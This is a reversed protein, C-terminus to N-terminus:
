IYGIRASCVGVKDLNSYGTLSPVNKIPLSSQAESLLTLWFFFISRQPHDFWLKFVTNLSLSAKKEYHNTYM